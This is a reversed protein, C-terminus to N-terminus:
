QYSYKCDIEIVALETVGKFAMRIQQVYIFSYVFGFCIAKNKTNLAMEFM